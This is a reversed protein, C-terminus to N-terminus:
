SSLSPYAMDAILTAYVVSYIATTAGIGVALTVVATATFGANKRMMRLSFRLNQWLTAMRKDTREKM